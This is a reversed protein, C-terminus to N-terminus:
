QCHARARFKRKIGRVTAKDLSLRGCCSGDGGAIWQTRRSERGETHEMCVRATLGRRAFSAAPVGSTGAGTTYSPPSAISEWSRTASVSVSVSVSLYRSPSLSARCMGVYAPARSDPTLRMFGFSRFEFFLERIYVMLYGYWQLVWPHLDLSQYEETLACTKKSVRQDLRKEKSDRSGELWGLASTSTALDHVLGDM